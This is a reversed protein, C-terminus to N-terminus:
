ANQKYALAIIEMLGNDMDKSNKVIYYQNIRVSGGTRGITCRDDVFDEPLNLGIFFESDKTPKILLFQYKRYFPIYTKCPKIRIDEGLKLVKKEIDRYTRLMSSTSFLGEILSKDDGYVVIGQSSEFVAQAQFHGLSHETKLYAIAAKKDKLKSQKLVAIWQVLSKGTKKELNQRVREGMEKPGLAM